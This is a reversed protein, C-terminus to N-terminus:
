EEAGSARKTRFGEFADKQKEEMIPMILENNETQLANVRAQIDAIEKQMGDLKGMIGELLSFNSRAMFSACYIRQQFSCAQCNGSCNTRQTTEM